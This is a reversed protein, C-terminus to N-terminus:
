PTAPYKGRVNKAANLGFTFSVSTYNLHPLGDHHITQTTVDNINFYHVSKLLVSAGDDSHLTVDSLIFRVERIGYKTGSPNVYQQTSTNLQLPAGDVNLNFHVDVVGPTDPAAPDDDGCAAMALVLMLVGFRLYRFM